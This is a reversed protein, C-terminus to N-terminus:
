YDHRQLARVGSEYMALAEYYGPKRPPPPPAVREAVAGAAGREVPRSPGAKGNGAKSRASAPASRLATAAKTPKKAPARRPATTAKKASARATPKQKSQRAM